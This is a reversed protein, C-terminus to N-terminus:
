FWRRSIHILIKKRVKTSRDKDGFISPVVFSIDIEASADVTDM